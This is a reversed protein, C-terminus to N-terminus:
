SRWVVEGSEKNLAALTGGSGGPTCIVKDGDVLPSESNGWGSMMRGRFHEQLNKRWKEAGKDADVCILDGFQGLAFVWNGDVTPTCRPGPYGGGGGSRGLKTAWVHKGDKEALALLYSADARDGITFIKGDSVSVSSYGAGVGNTKWALPPGGAPWQKLLGTETSIGDRKPGRWQPWDKALGMSVSVFFCIITSQLRM